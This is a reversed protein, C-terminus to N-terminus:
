LAFTYTAIETGPDPDSEPGGHRLWRHAIIVRDAVRGVPITLPAAEPEVSIFSPGTGDARGILFPIGHFHQVGVPPQRLGDLIELGVTCFASLDVPQYGREEDAVTRM